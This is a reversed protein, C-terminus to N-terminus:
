HVRRIFTENSNLLGIVDFQARDMTVITVNATDQNDSDEFAIDLISNIFSNPQTKEFRAFMNTLSELGTESAMATIYAVNIPLILSTNKGDRVPSIISLKYDLYDIMDDEINENTQRIAKLLDNFDTSFSEISINGVAAVELYDNIYGTIIKNLFLIACREPRSANLKTFTRFSKYLSKIGAKYLDDGNIEDILCNYSAVSYGTTILHAEIRGKQPEHGSAGDYLDSIGNEIAAERCTANASTHRYISQGGLPTTLVPFQQKDMGVVDGRSPTVTFARLKNEIVLQQSQRVQQAPQENVQRVPEGGYRDNRQDQPYLGPSQTFSGAPIAARNQFVQQNPQLIQQNHIQQANMAQQNQLYQLAMAVQAPTLQNIQQQANVNVPMQVQQMVQGQNDPYDYIAGTHPNVYRM